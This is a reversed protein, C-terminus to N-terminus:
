MVRIRFNAAVMGSVTSGEGPSAAPPVPVGRIPVGALSVADHAPHAIELKVLLSAEVLPSIPAPEVVFPAASWREDDTGGDVVAALLGGTGRADFGPMAICLVFLEVLTGVIRDGSGAADNSSSASSNLLSQPSSSPKPYVSVAAFSSSSSGQPAGDTDLGADIVDYSSLPSGSKAPQSAACDRPLFTAFFGSGFPKFLDVVGATLDRGTM